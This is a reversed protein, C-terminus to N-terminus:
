LLCIFIKLFHSHKKLFLVPKHIGVEEIVKQQTEYKLLRLRKNNRTHIHTGPPLALYIKLRIKM